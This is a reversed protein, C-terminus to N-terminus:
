RQERHLRVDSRVPRLRGRPLPRHVDHEAGSRASRAAGLVSRRPFGHSMKDVRTSCSCRIACAPRAGHEPRDQGADLRHLHPPPRPDRGRRARRRAVHARVQPQDRARDVPRALDQRRGAPRGPVPDPGQATKVRQQVALYEVIREKVKELGYHDEDLVKEARSIDQHVKTRKKWPVSSWGTSTTACSVTAEAPCRRCRAQAQQARATAKSAAEKPM